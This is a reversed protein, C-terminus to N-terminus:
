RALRTRIRCQTAVTYGMIDSGLTTWNVSVPDTGAAGPTAQVGMPACPEGPPNFPVSQVGTVNGASDRAIFRLKHAPGKALGARTIPFDATGM